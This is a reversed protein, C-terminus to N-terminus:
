EMWCYRRRVGRHVRKMFQYGTQYSTSAGGADTDMNIGFEGCWVPRNYKARWKVTEGVMTKITAKTKGTVYFHFSYVTNTDSAPYIPNCYSPPVLTSTPNFYHSAYSVNEVVIPHVKDRARIKAIMTDRFAPWVTPAQTDHPENILDYAFGDGSDAYFNVYNQMCNNIFTQQASASSWFQNMGGGNVGAPEWLIVVYLGYKRCWSIAQKVQAVNYGDRAWLRVSNAKWNQALNAVDSEALAGSAGSTPVVNAGRLMGSPWKYDAYSVDALFLIALACGILISATIKEALKM